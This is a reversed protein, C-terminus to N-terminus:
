LQEVTVDEFVTVGNGWKRLGGSGETFDSDTFSLVEVGDVSIVHSDGVVKIIIEHSTGKVDFDSGMVDTMKVEQFPAQESGEVVKRVVFKNGLGPDYQFIYGTIDQEGDARYYIGYGNGSELNVNATISYDQWSTDGFAYRQSAGTNPTTLSGDALVWESARPYLNIFFAMDEAQDFGASLLYEASALGNWASAGLRYYLSDADVYGTLAEEKLEFIGYGGAVRAVRERVGSTIKEGLNGRVYLIDDLNALEFCVRGAECLKGDLYPGLESIESPWSGKDAHAMHAARALTKLDSVIRTAEAKDRSPMMVPLAIGALIGRVIIAILLEVLSFGTRAPCKQRETSHVLHTLM